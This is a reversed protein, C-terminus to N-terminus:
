CREARREIAGLRRRTPARAGVDCRGIRRRVQDRAGRCGSTDGASRGPARRWGDPASATGCGSRPTRTLAQRPRLRPARARHAARSADRGTCTSLESRTSTRAAATASSSDCAASSSAIPSPSSATTTSCSNYTSTSGNLPKMARGGDAEVTGRRKNPCRPRASSATWGPRRRYRRERM